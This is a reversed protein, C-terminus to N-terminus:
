ERAHKPQASRSYKAHTTCSELMDVCCKRLAAHKGIGLCQRGPQFELGQRREGIEALAKTRTTGKGSDGLPTEITERSNGQNRMSKKRVTGSQAAASLTHRVVKEHVRVAGPREGAHCRQPARASPLSPQVPEDVDRGDVAKERRGGGVVGENTGMGAKNTFIASM